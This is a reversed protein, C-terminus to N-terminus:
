LGAAMLGDIHPTWVNGTRMFKETAMVEFHGHVVDWGYFLEDSTERNDDFGKYGGAVRVPKSM